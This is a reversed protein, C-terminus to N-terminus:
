RVHEEGLEELITTGSQAYNGIFQVKAEKEIARVVEAPFKEFTIFPQELIVGAIEWHGTTTDKGRSKERMRGWRARTHQSRRDFVDATVIKWLGLSCLTPLSLDPYLELIHGLTNAGEDGFSAADPAQGCGVSDLVILLARM